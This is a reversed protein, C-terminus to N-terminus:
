YKPTPLALKDWLEALGQTREDDRGDEVHTYLKLILRRAARITRRELGGPAGSGHTRARVDGPVPVLRHRRARSRQDGEPLPRVRIARIVSGESVGSEEMQDYVLDVWPDSALLEGLRVAVWPHLGEDGGRAPHSERHAYQLMQSAREKEKQGILVHGELHAAYGALTGDCMGRTHSLPELAAAPDGSQILLNGLLLGAVDGSDTGKCAEFVREFGDRATDM